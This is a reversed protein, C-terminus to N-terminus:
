NEADDRTIKYYSLVAEIEEDDCEYEGDKFKNLAIIEKAKTLKDSSLASFKLWWETTLDCDQKTVTTYRHAM